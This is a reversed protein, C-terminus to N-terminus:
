RYLSHKQAKAHTKLKSPGRLAFETFDRATATGDWLQLTLIVQHRKGKKVGEVVLFQKSWQGKDDTTEYYTTQRGSPWLVRVWVGLRKKRNAQLKAMEVADIRAVPKSLSVHVFGLSPKLPIRRISGIAMHPDRRLFQACAEYSGCKTELPRGTADKITVTCSSPCVARLPVRVTADHTRPQRAASVTTRPSAQTTSSVSRLVLSTIVLTLVVALVAAARVLASHRLDAFVTKPRGFQVTIVCRNSVPSAAEGRADLARARYVHTGEVVSPLAVRWTGEGSVMTRAALELWDFLEISSNPDATGSVTVRTTEVHSEHEPSTIVPAAQM